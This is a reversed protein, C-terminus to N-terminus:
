YKDLTESWQMFEIYDEPSLHTKAYIDTEIVARAHAITKNLGEGFAIRAEILEHYMVIDKFKAPVSEHVWISLSTGGGGLNPTLRYMGPNKEDVLSGAGCNLIYFIRYAIGSYEYWGRKGEFSLRPEKNVQNKEKESM